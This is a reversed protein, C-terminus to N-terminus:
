GPGAEGAARRELVGFATELQRDHAELLAECVSGGRMPGTDGVVRVDPQVGIRQFPVVGDPPVFPSAGFTLMSGDPGAVRSVCYECGATPAGVITAGRLARLMASTWESYSATYENVLVVIPDSIISPSANIRFVGTVEILGFLEPQPPTELLAGCSLLREMVVQFGPGSGGPAFRLDVLTSTAGQLVDAAADLERELTLVADHKGPLSRGARWVLVGVGDLNWAAVSKGEFAKPAECQEMRASLAKTTASRASPLLRGGEGSVAIENPGKVTVSMGRRRWLTVTDRADPDQLDVALVSKEPGINLPNRVTTWDNLEVGNFREVPWGVTKTVADSELVGLVAHADVMCELVVEGDVIMLSLDTAGLPGDEAEWLEYNPSFSVHPDRVSTVMGMLAHYFETVTGAEVVKAEWQERLADGSLGVVELDPACATLAEHYTEFTASRLRQDFVSPDYSRCGGLLFGLSLATAAARRAKSM